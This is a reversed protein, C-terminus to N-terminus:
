FSLQEGATPIIVRTRQVLTEMTKPDGHLMDFTGWHVPIVTDLELYDNCAMAAQEPGMTFRDGCPLLGIEPNYLKQILRMDSFLGTDGAHYVSHTVTRIVFGAPDGLNITNGDRIISASHFAPTMAFQVDGMNVAGGTNMPQIKEVGQSQLWMALEFQAFLTAGYEKALRVTDGIHDDHGHTIAIADLKDLKDEWGEPYTPNGSLFPDVLISLGGLELHTASHGLWTLKM